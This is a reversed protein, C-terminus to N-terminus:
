VDHVTNRVLIHSRSPLLRTDARVVGLIVWTIYVVLLVLFYDLEVRELSRSTLSMRERRKEM